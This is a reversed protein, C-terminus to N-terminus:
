VRLLGRGLSVFHLNCIDAIEQKNVIKDVTVCSKILVALAFRFPCETYFHSFFIPLVSHMRALSAIM